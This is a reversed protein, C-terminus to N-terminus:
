KIGAKKLAARARDCAAPLDHGSGGNAAADWSSDASLLLDRLADVLEPAAAFLAGDAMQQKEPYEFSPFDIPEWCDHKGVWVQPTPGSIVRLDFPGPSHKNM